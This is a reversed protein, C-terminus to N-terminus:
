GSGEFVAAKIGVTSWSPSSRRGPRRRARARRGRGPAPRAVAWRLALAATAGAAVAPRDLAGLVLADTAGDRTAACRSGSPASWARPTRSACCRSTPPSGTAAPPRSGPPSASSAPSSRCSCCRTPCSPATATRARRDSRPVLVAGPRLGGPPAALRRRALRPGDGPSRPTTSAPAPRAAPAAARWTCRPSAHHLEHRRPPRARVLLGALVGRGAVVAVGRAQADADLALLASCTTSRTAPSVVRGGPPSTSASRARRPHRVPRRAARRRRRADADGARAKAGSSSSSPPRPAGPRHRRRRGRRRGPERRAAARGPRGVAGAGIVLVRM